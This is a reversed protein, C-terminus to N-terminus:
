AADRHRHRGPDRYPAGPRLRWSPVTDRGRRDDRPWMGIYGINNFYIVGAACRTRRNSWPFHCRLRAARQRRPATATSSAKFRRARAASGLPDPGGAVIVPRNGATHSDIITLRQMGPLILKFTSHKIFGLVRPNFMLCQVNPNNPHIGLERALRSWREDENRIVTAFQQPTNGVPQLAAAVLREKVDPLALAKVTEAHLRHVIDANAARPALLGLWQTSDFGKYGADNLTPIEPMLTFRDLSTFAIIRIRGSKHHPILPTSGLVCVPVQGGILDVVAQGGGKYPVGTMDIKAMKKLLEGTM